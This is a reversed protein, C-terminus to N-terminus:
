VKVKGRAIQILTIGIGGVSIAAMCGFIVFVWPSVM